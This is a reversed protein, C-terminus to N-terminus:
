WPRKGPYCCGMSSRRRGPVRCTRCCKNRRWWQKLRLCCQAATGFWGCLTPRVKIRGTRPSGCQIVDCKTYVAAAWSGCRGVAETRTPADAATPTRPVGAPCLGVYKCDVHLRPAGPGVLGAPAPGPGAGDTRRVCCQKYRPSLEDVSVWDYTCVAGDPDYEIRGACFGLSPDVCCLYAVADGDGRYAALCASTDISAAPGRPPPLPV